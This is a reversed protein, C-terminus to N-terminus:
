RADAAASAAREIPVGELLVGEIVAKGGLIRVRAYSKTRDARSLAARYAAEAAPALRENMYYRNEALSVRVTDGTEQWSAPTVLYVGREPRTASVHEVTGVGQADLALVVYAPAGYGPAPGRLPHSARELEFSLTVYRGRFPDAPDVPAVELLVATGEALVREFRAIGSAAAALQALCLAFFAIVRPSM